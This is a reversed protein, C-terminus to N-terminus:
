ALMGHQRVTTATNHARVDDGTTGGNGPGGADRGRRRSKWRCSSELFQRIYM